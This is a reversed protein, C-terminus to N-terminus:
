NVAFDHAYVEIKGGPQIFVINFYILNGYDEDFDKRNLNIPGRALYEQWLKDLDINMSAKATSIDDSCYKKSLLDLDIKLYKCDIFKIAIQEYKFDKKLVEVNLYFNDIDENNIRERILKFSSVKSDHYNYNNFRDIIERM